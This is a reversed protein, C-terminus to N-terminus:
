ARFGLGNGGEGSVLGLGMSLCFKIVEFGAAVYPPVEGM